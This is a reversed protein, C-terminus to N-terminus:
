IFSCGATGSNEATSQGFVATRPGAAGASTPTTSRFLNADGYM